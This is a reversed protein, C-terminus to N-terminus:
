GETNLCFLAAIDESERQSLAFGACFAAILLLVVLLVTTAKRLM